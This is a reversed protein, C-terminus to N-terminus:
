VHATVFVLKGITIANLDHLKSDTNNTAIKHVCTLYFFKFSPALFITMPITIESPIKINLQNSGYFFYRDCCDYIIPMTNNTIDNNASPNKGSKWAWIFDYYLGCGVYIIYCILLHTAIIENTEINAEFVAIEANM